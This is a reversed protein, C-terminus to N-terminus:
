RTASGVRHHPRRRRPLFRAAIREPLRVHEGRRRSLDARHDDRHGACTTSTTSIASWPTVRSWSEKPSPAGGHHRLPERRWELSRDVARHHGDLVAVLLPPPLVVSAVRGRGGTHRGRRRHGSRRRAVGTCRIPSSAEGDEAEETDSSRSGHARRTQMPRGGQRSQRRMRGVSLTEVLHVVVRPTPDNLRPEIEIQCAPHRRARGEPLSTATCSPFRRPALSHHRGRSPCSARGCGIGHVATHDHDPDVDGGRLPHLDGSRDRERESAAGRLFSLRLTGLRGTYGVSADAASAREVEVTQGELPHGTGGGAPGPCVMKIIAPTPHGTSGNVLGSFYQHPRIRPHTSAGSTGPLMVALALVASLAFVVRRSMCVGSSWETGRHPPGSSWVTLGLARHNLRQRPSNM